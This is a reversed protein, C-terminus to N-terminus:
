ELMFHWMELFRGKFCRWYLQCFIFKQFLWNQGADLHLTKAIDQKNIQSSNILLDSIQM